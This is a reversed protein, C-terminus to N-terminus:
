GPRVQAPPAAKGLKGHCGGVAGRGRCGQSGGLGEGVESVRRHTPPVRFPCHPQPLGPTDWSPGRHSLAPGASPLPTPVGNGSGHPSTPESGESKRSSRLTQSTQTSPVPRPLHGQVSPLPPTGQVQSLLHEPYSLAQPPTRHSYNHNRVLAVAIAILDKVWQAVQSSGTIILHVKRRKKRGCRCCISTRSWPKFGLWMRSRHWLQPLAPKKVWQVPNPISSAVGCLCALDNVKQAM